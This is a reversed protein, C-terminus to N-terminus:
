GAGPQAEVSAGGPSIAASLRKCSGRLASSAVFFGLIYIWKPGFLDGVRGLALVLGIVTLDYVLLIWQIFSLDARFVHTLTPLAVQIARHNIAVLV